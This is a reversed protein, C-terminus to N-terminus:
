AHMTLYNNTDHIMHACSQKMHYLAVSIILSFCSLHPIVIHLNELYTCYMYCLDCAHLVFKKGQMIIIPADIMM